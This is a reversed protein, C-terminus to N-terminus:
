EGPIIFILFGLKSLSEIGAGDSKITRPNYASMGGTDLEKVRGKHHIPGTGGFGRDGVRDDSRHLPVGLGM